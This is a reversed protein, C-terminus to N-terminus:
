FRSKFFYSNYNPTKFISLWSLVLLQMLMQMNKVDKYEYDDGSIVSFVGMNLSPVMTIYSFHGYTAGGHHLYEYGSM